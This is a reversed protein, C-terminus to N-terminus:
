PTGESLQTCGRDVYRLKYTSRPVETSVFYKIYPAYSTRAEYFKKGLTRVVTIIM